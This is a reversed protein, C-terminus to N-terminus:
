IATRRVILKGHIYTGDCYSAVVATIQMDPLRLQENMTIPQLSRWSINLQEMTYADKLFIHSQFFKNIKTM